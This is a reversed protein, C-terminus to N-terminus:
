PRTVSKSTKPRPKGSRLSSTRWIAPWHAKRKKKVAPKCALNWWPNGRQGLGQRKLPISARAAQLIERKIEENLQDVTESLDIRRHESLLLQFRKWDAKELNFKEPALPPPYDAEPSHHSRHAPPGLDTCQGTNDM